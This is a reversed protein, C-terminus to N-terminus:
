CAGVRPQASRGREDTIFVARGKRHCHASQDFLSQRALRFTPCGVGVISPVIVTPAHCGIPVVRPSSRPLVSHTASHQRCRGFRYRDESASRQAVMPGGVVTEPQLASQSSPPSGKLADRRLPDFLRLDIPLPAGGSRLEIAFFGMGLRKNVQMAVKQTSQSAAAFCIVRSAFFGSRRQRLRSQRPYLVRYRSRLERGSHRASFRLFVAARILQHQSLM